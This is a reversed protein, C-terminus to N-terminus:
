NEHQQKIQNSAFDNESRLFGTSCTLDFRERQNLIQTAIFKKRPASTRQFNLAGRMEYLGFTDLEHKM